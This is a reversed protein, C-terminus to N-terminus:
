PFKPPTMQGRCCRIQNEAQHFAYTNEARFSLDSLKKGELLMSLLMGHGFPRGPDNILDQYSRGLGIHDTGDFDFLAINEGNDYMKKLRQYAETHIIMDTYLKGYVEKRGEVYSIRRNNWWVFAPKCKDKSKPLKRVPHRLIGKYRKFEPHNVDFRPERWGAKAFAWWEETPTLMDRDLHTEVAGESNVVEHYVKSYQWAAEINNAEIPEDLGPILVPGVFMPSLARGWESSATTINVMTWDLGPRWDCYFPNPKGGAITKRIKGYIRIPM